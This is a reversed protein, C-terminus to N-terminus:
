SRYAQKKRINDKQVEYAETLKERNEEDFHAKVYTQVAIEMLPNSSNYAIGVSTLDEIGAEIMLNITNDFDSNTIGLIKKIEETM